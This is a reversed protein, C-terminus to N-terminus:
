GKSSPPSFAQLLDSTDRRTCPALHKIHGQMSLDPHRQSLPADILPAMTSEGATLETCVCSTLLVPARSFTHQRGVRIIDITNSRLPGRSSTASGM